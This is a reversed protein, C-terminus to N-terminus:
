EAAEIFCEVTDGEAFDVFGDVLFGCEYGAHVEKVTKKDRQLSKIFGEGIKKNRRSIIVFGDRPFRGEIVRCGAIVGVGKIDFVKLVLADGTKKRVMIVPKAGQAM